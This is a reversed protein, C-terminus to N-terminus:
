HPKAKMKFVLPWVEDQEPPFEIVSNRNPETGHRQRRRPIPDPNARNAEPERYVAIGRRDDRWRFM